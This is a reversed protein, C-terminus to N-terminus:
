WGSILDRKMAVPPLPWPYLNRGTRPSLITSAMCPMRSESRARKHAQVSLGTVVGAPPRPTTHVSSPLRDPALPMSNTSSSSFLVMLLQGLVLVLVLGLGLLPGLLLVLSPSTFTILLNYAQM